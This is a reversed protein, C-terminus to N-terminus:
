PAPRLVFQRDPIVRRAQKRLVIQVRYIGYPALAGSALRGNWRLSLRTYAPYSLARALTVVTIGRANIVTVTVDDARKLHFSIREIRHIRGLPTFFREMRVNQVVPPEHKLKQTVFFAAFTALVLLVFAGRALSQTARNSSM